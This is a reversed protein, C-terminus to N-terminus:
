CMVLNATFESVISTGNAKSQLIEGTYEEGANALINQKTQLADTAPLSHSIWM